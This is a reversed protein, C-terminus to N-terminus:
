ELENVDTKFGYITEPIREEPKLESKGKKKQVTVKFCLERQVEGKVDKLGVGVAIVGPLKMLEKEAKERVKDFEKNIDVLENRPIYTDKKAM